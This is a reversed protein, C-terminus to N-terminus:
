APLRAHYSKPFIQWSSRYIITMELSCSFRQSGRQSFWYDLLIGGGGLHSLRWDTYINGQNCSRLSFCASTVTHPNWGWGDMHFVNHQYRLPNKRFSVMMKKAATIRSWRFWPPCPHTTNRRQLFSLFIISKCIVQFQKNLIHSSSIPIRINNIIMPFCQCWVQTYMIVNSAFNQEDQTQKQIKKCIPKSDLQCSGHPCCWRAKCAPITLLRGADLFIPIRSGTRVKIKEKRPAISLNRGLSHVCDRMCQYQFCAHYISFMRVKGHVIIEM